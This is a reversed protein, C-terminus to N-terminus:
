HVGRLRLWLLGLGEHVGLTSRELSESDFRMPGEARSVFDAPCAVFDVGASGFLTAARPMHWASTVLATRAGAAIRAVAIAEEETDKATDLLIIRSPSVGLSLAAAALVSAHTRGLPLAPGSLILTAGPLARYLRVGEVIRALGSTSLRGTASVGRLDAHGSGLVAIYRCGAISAPVPESAAMEPIAPYRSELPRTLRMSVYNNSFLILLATGACILGLGARRCRQSFALVLGAVLLASCFPLPMLWYSVVKKLWFM